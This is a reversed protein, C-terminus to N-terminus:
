RRRNVARRHSEPPPSGFVFSMPLTNAEADVVERAVPYYAFEVRARAATGKVPAFSIVALQRAGAAFTQGSPLAMALGVYGNIRANVHLTAHRVDGGNTAAVFRWESPDFRLSWGLANEDGRADLEVVFNMLREQREEDAAALWRGRVGRMTAPQRSSAALQGSGAALQSSSIPQTPGGAAVPADTGLYRGAQVWDSVTLRGDGKTDRPACDARQFEAGPAAADLGAVFRGVQVWDTITVTGNNNGAPRPTVDAEYGPVVTLSGATYSAPLAIASADSVERQLPQDGFDLTTVGAGATAALNFTVVALQRTGAAFKQGAALALGIGIRGQATQTTVTALQAGAADAGLSAQPSSLLAPDFTLTFGLANEDGQAVLEIPVALGSSGPAASTAAVRVVRPTAVGAQTVTFTQNNITILGTRPGLTNAAVTFAVTGNGAGSSGATITLWNANTTATWTCGGQATITINGTGGTIPFSQTTQSITFLNLSYRGGNGIAGSSNNGDWVIMENGTWVASHYARAIPAGTTTTAIWSDTALNYRGGTNIYANGLTDGGWVIMESGTWVASPGFRAVPAGATTINATWTDTAPNYRVGSNTGTFRAVLGGWIIMENGTWVASHFQRASPAGTTTINATWSDTVPNYRAGSEFRFIGDNNIIGGGWVIM